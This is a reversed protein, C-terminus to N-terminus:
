VLLWHFARLPLDWVLRREQTLREVAMNMRLDNGGRRRSPSTYRLIADVHAPLIGTPGCRVSYAIGARSRRMRHAPRVICPGSWREKRVPRARRIRGQRAHGPES